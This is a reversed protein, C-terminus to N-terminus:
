GLQPLSCGPCSALSDCPQSGDSIRFFYINGLFLSSCDVHCLCLFLSMKIMFPSHKPCKKATKIGAYIGQGYLVEFLYKKLGTM